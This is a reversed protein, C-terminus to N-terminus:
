RGVEQLVVDWIGCGGGSGGLGSLHRPSAQGRM